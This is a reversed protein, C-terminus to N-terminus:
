QLKSNAQKLTRYVKKIGKLVWLKQPLFSGAVDRYDCEIRMILFLYFRYAAIRVKMKEDYLAKKHAYKNYTDWFYTDKEFDIYNVAQCFDAAPCGYFGREFDIIGTIEIDENEGQVFVNGDWLDFHCVVPYEIEEFAKKSNEFVEYIKDKKIPLKVNKRQADEILAQVSVMLSNLCGKGTCKEGMTIYGFTEGKINHLKALYEALTIYLAKRMAPTINKVNNLPIGQLKSMFYYPSSITECSMDEALIHPVKIDTHEFALKYFHLETAMIDKEYTLIDVDYPPAIKLVAERGDDMKVLYSINYFGENLEHYETTGCGFHKRVAKEIQEKSVTAKTLSKM